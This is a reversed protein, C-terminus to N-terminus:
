FWVLPSAGPCRATPRVLAGFKADALHTMNLEKAEDPPFPWWLSFFTSCSTAVVLAATLAFGPRYMCISMCVCTCIGCLDIRM